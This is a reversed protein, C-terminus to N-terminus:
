KSLPMWSQPPVQVRTKDSDWYQLVPDAALKQTLKWLKGIRELAFDDKTIKGNQDKINIQVIIFQGYEVQKVVTLSFDKAYNKQWLQRWHADDLGSQRDREQMQRLSDPAWCQNSRKVDAMRMADYYALVVEEPFESLCTEFSPKSEGKPPLQVLKSFTTIKIPYINEVILTKYVILDSASVNFNLCCLFVAAVIRTNFYNM